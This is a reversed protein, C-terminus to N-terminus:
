PRHQRVNYYRKLNQSTASNPNALAAATMGVSEQLLLAREKPSLRFETARDVRGTTQNIVTLASGDATESAPLIAGATRPVFTEPGREGVLYSRGPLVDGGAAMGGAFFPNPPTVGGGGFGGFIGGLLSEWWGGGGGGAPSKMTDRLREMMPEIVGLRLIVRAIDQLMGKFVDSVEGGGIVAEEFASAFTLGLEETISKTETAKEATLNLAGTAADNFEEATIAGREFAAALFEMERRQKELQAQPGGEMLTRLRQRDAQEIDRAAQVAAEDDRRRFAAREEAARQAEKTADITRALTVLQERQAQSVTVSGRRIDDLVKEEASLESTKQIQQQLNSLYSKFDSDPDKGKPGPTGPIRPATRLPPTMGRGLLRRAEDDLGAAPQNTGIALVRAQFKDLEARAREGDAKVADSIARFGQLDGRALAGLQAAWAGIERGVSLFVFGVDSGVVALTQFVNVLGGIAAKVIGSATDVVAENKAVALLMDSVDNLAPLLEGAARNAVGGVAAGLRTMNDNFAEAAKSADTDLVVGLQQAEERLKGLGEAGSNLLPILDAGARGFLAVALATKEAGDKYGAFKGAIEELVKDASKLSGDSNKVSIGLAQFAKAAEGTGDAADGMNKSLKVMASGLEQQSLGSLDAAYALASFAEVSTGVKQAMKVTEDMADISSKVMAVAAAGVATFAAGVAVGMAQAEKKLEALRKEARKTDTEFSGTKMLLDVIISGAAM